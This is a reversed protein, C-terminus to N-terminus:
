PVAHSPEAARTIWEDDRADQEMSRRAALNAHGVYRRVGRWSGPSSVLARRLAAIREDAPPHTAIYRGLAEPIIAMAEVVPNRTPMRGHPEVKLGFREFMESAAWPDYAAGASLAAGNVDAALEQEESFGRLMAEYGLRALPGLGPSVKGAAQELQLREVCHRLDVHSIEHGLVAALEAESAVFALMGETIYIRGGPVAFANIEASRVVASTYPIDRRLTQGAVRATLDALYGEVSADGGIPMSGRVEADISRGLEIEEASSLRTLDLAPHLVDHVIDGSVTVFADLNRRDPSTGRAALWVGAALASAVVLLVALRVLSRM